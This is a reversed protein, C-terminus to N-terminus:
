WKPNIGLRTPFGFVFGDAAPLKFPNIIPVDSKPPARLRVLEEPPLTQPVEVRVLDRRFRVVSDLSVWVSFGVSQQRQSIALEVAATRESEEEGTNTPSHNEVRVSRRGEVVFGVVDTLRGIRGGSLVPHHSRLIRQRCCPSTWRLHCYRRRCRHHQLQPHSATHSLM